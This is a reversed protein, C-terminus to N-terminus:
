YFLKGSIGYNVFYANHSIIVKGYEFHTSLTLDPKIIINSFGKQLDALNFKFHMLM